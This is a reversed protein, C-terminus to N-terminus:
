KLALLSALHKYAVTTSKAMGGSTSFILPTFSGLEVERIRQAYIRQKEREQRRYVSALQLELYTKFMPTLVRVDSFARQHRNGWFGQASIDLRAGDETNATSHTLSEGSLSQLHPEVCVNYCVETMVKATFDRLENHRITPFGGTHSNLAHDITFSQGCVCNSPLHSPQWNYRLCLADRFAGKHLTFGHEAIPLACLWSSAGKKSGLEMARQLHRPLKGKLETVMSAHQQCRMKKVEAKASHQANMTDFSIQPQQLFILAALPAAITQSSAFEFAAVKTPNLYYCITHLVCM